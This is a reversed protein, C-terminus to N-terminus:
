LSQRSGRRGSTGNYRTLPRRVARRVPPSLWAGAARAEGDGPRQALGRRVLCIRASERIGRFCRDLVTIPNAGERRWGCARPPSGRCTADQGGTFPTVAMTRRKLSRLAVSAAPSHIPSLARWVLLRIACCISAACRVKGALPTRHCRREYQPVTPLSGCGIGGNKPLRSTRQPRQVAFCGSYRDAPKGASRRARRQRLLTPRSRSRAPRPESVAHKGAAEPIAM